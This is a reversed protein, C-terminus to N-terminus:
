FFIIFYVKSESPIRRVPPNFSSPVDVPVTWTKDWSPSSTQVTSSKGSGLLWWVVSLRKVHPPTFVEPINNLYSHSKFAIIM